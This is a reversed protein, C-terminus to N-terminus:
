AEKIDNLFQEAHKGARSMSYEQRSACHSVQSIDFILKDVLHTTAALNEFRKEDTNTEGVPEIEGLLKKVVDYIEM